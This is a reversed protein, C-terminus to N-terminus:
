QNIQRIAQRAFFRTEFDEDNVVKELYPIAKADPDQLLIFVAKRRVQPHDHELAVYVYPMAEDPDISM